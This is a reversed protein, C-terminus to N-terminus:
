TNTWDQCVLPISQGIASGIQTLLKASHITGFSADVLRKILGINVAWCDCVATQRDMAWYLGRLAGRAFWASLLSQCTIREIWFKRRDASWSSRDFNHTISLKVPRISLQADM